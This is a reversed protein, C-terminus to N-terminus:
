KKPHPILETIFYIDDEIKLPQQVHTHIDNGLAAKTGANPLSHQCLGHRQSLRGRGGRHCGTLWRSFRSIRGRYPAKETLM